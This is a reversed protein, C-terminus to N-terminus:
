KHMTLFTTPEKKTAIEQPPTKYAANLWEKSSTRQIQIILLREWVEENQCEPMCLQNTLDSRHRPLTSTFIRTRGTQLTQLRPVQLPGLTILWRMKLKTKLKCPDM